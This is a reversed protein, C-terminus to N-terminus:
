SAPLLCRLAEEISSISTVEAPVAVTAWGAGALVLRVGAHVIAHVTEVDATPRTQSFLVVTTPSLPRHLADLVADLPTAAGLMLVSQNAECLAGRLVELVLTHTETVTCALIISASGAPATARIRQLCRVVTWSLVHEVDICGGGNSQRDEIAAYVPRIVHEWTDATGHHRLHRDLIAETATADLDLAAALVLAASDLPPVAIELAAKAAARPSAGDGILEHMRQVVAIDADGYLRHRGPSHGVPGVGYRQNWSRLTATPIGLRQAVAQVTHWPLRSADERESPDDINTSTM